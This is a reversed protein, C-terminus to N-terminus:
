SSISLENRDIMAATDSLFVCRGLMEQSSGDSVSSNTRSTIQLHLTLENLVGVQFPVSFSSITAGEAPFESSDNTRM